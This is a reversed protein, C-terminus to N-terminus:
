GIVFWAVPLATKAAKTLYITLTSASVDTVVGEVAVGALHGQPTALVISSATLGFVNVSVSTAGAAVTAVGSRDFTVVGYVALATATESEATIGAGNTSYGYVGSSNTSTGQVGIGNNSNGQVGYGGGSADNGYVGSQDEASNQGFVGIGNTSIGYAGYGGGSSTDHGYVGSNGSASTNGQLGNGATATVVTSKTAKNSAGLIVDGGDAAGAPAEGAMLSVAAGAGAAAMGLMVARRGVRTARSGTGRDDDTSFSVTSEQGPQESMIM